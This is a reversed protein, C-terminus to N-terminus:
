IPPLEPAGESAFGYGNPYLSTMASQGLFLCSETCVAAISVGLAWQSSASVHPWRFTSWWEPAWFLLSHPLVSSGAEQLASVYGVGEYFPVLLLGLAVLSLASFLVMFVVVHGEIEGFRYNEVSIGDGMMDLTIVLQFVSMSVGMHILPPLVLIITLEVFAVLLPLFFVCCVSAWLIFIIESVALISDTFPNHYLMGGLYDSDKMLYSICIIIPVLIPKYFPASTVRALVCLAGENAAPSSNSWVLYDGLVFCFAILQVFIFLSRHIKNVPTNTVVPFIPLTEGDLHIIRDFESAQRASLFSSAFMILPHTKIIFDHRVRSIYRNRFSTYEDSYRLRCAQLVLFITALV